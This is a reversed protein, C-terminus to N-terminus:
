EYGPQGYSPQQYYYMPQIYQQQQQQQPAYGHTNNMPSGYKPARPNSQNNSRNRFSGSGSRHRQNSYNNPTTSGENGQTNSIEPEQSEPASTTNANESSM